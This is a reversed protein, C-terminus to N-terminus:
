EVKGEFIEDLADLIKDNLKLYKKGGIKEFVDMAQLIQGMAKAREVMGEKTIKDSRGDPYLIRTREFNSYLRPHEFTKPEKPRTM